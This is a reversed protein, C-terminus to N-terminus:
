GVEDLLALPADTIEDTVRSGWPCFQGVTDVWYDVDQSVLVANGDCLEIAAETLMWRGAVFHWNWELNHGGNGRGIEGLIFLRREHLPLELQARAAAIVQPDDTAARFDQVGSVDGVMKFHFLVHGPPVGGGPNSSDGDCGAAMAVLWLLLALARRM